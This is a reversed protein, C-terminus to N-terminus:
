RGESTSTMPHGLMLGSVGISNEGFWCLAVGFELFGNSAKGLVNVHVLIFCGLDWVDDGVVEGEVLLM